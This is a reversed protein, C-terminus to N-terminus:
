KVMLEPFPTGFWGVLLTNIEDVPYERVLDTTVFRDGILAANMKTSLTGHGTFVDLCADMWQGTIPDFINDTRATFANNVDYEPESFITAYSTGKSYRLESYEAVDSSNEEITVTWSSVCTSGEFDGGDYCWLTREPYNPDSGFLELTTGGAILAPKEIGLTVGTGWRGIYYFGPEASGNCACPLGPPVCYAASYGYDFEFMGVGYPETASIITATEKTSGTTTRYIFVGQREHFPVIVVELAFESDYSYTKHTGSCFSSGSAIGLAGNYPGGPDWYSARCAPGGGGWGWDLSEPKQEWGQEPQDFGGAGGDIVAWCRETKRYTGQECFGSGGGPVLAIEDGFCGYLIDEQGQPQPRTDVNELYSYLTRQRVVILQDGDYWAHIPANDYEEPATVAPYSTYVSELQAGSSGNYHPLKVSFLSHSQCYFYASDLEILEALTPGNSDGTITIKLLHNKRSVVEPTDVYAYMVNVAESGTSNFAWGCESYGPGSDAYEALIEPGALLRRSAIIPLTDTPVPYYSIGLEESGGTVVLQWATIGDDTDIEVVWKRGASDIYIGHTKFACYSYPVVSGMGYLLQVVKRMEGTYMGAYPTRPTFPASTCPMRTPLVAKDDYALSDLLTVTDEFPKRIFSTDLQQLLSVRRFYGDVYPDQNIGNFLGSVPIIYEIIQGLKPFTVRGMITPALGFPNIWTEVIVGGPLTTRKKGAMGQTFRGGERKARALTGQLQRAHDAVVARVRSAFSEGEPSALPSRRFITGTERYLDKDM